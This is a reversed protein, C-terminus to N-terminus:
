QIRAIDLRSIFKLLTEGKQQKMEIVTMMRKMIPYIDNMKKELSDVIDKWCNIKSTKMQQDLYHIWGPDMADKLRNYRPIYASEDLQETFKFHQDIKDKWQCYDIWTSKLTLKNEAWQIPNYNTM